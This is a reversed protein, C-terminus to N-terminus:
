THRVGYVRYKWRGAESDQELSLCRMGESSCLSSRQELCPFPACPWSWRHFKRRPLWQSAVWPSTKWDCPCGRLGQTACDQASCDPVQYRPALKLTFVHLGKPSHFHGGLTSPISGPAAQRSPADHKGTGLQAERKAESTHASPLLLPGYAQFLLFWAECGDGLLLGCKLSLSM